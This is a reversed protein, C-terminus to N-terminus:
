DQPQANNNLSEMFANTRLVEQLEEPQPLKDFEKILNGKKDILAFFPVYRYTFWNHMGRTSDRLYLLGPIGKLGFEKAFQNMEKLEVFSIMWFPINYQPVFDRLKTADIRCHGCDPNFYMILVPTDNPVSNIDVLANNNFVDQFVMGTYVKRMQSLLLSDEKTYQYHEQANINQHITLGLVSLSIIQIAKKIVNM